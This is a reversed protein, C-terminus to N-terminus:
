ANWMLKAPTGSLDSTPCAFLFLTLQEINKLLGVDHPFDEKALSGLAIILAASNRSPSSTMQWNRSLPAIRRVSHLPGTCTETAQVSGM